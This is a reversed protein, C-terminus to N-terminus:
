PRCDNQQRPGRGDLFGMDRKLYDPLTDLDLPPVTDVANLANWASQLLRSLMSPESAAADALIRDEMRFLALNTNAM